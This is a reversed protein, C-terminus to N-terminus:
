LLPQPGDKIPLRLGHALCLQPLQKLLTTGARQDKTALKFTALPPKGLKGGIGRAREGFDCGRHSGHVLKAGIQILQPRKECFQLPSRALEARGPQLKLTDTASAAHFENLDKTGAPVDRHLRQRCAIKEQL